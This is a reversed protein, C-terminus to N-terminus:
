NRFCPFVPPDGEVSWVGSIEDEGIVVGSCAEGCAGARMFTEECEFIEHEFSGRVGPSFHEGDDAIDEGEGSAGILLSGEFIFEEGFGDSDAPFIELVWVEVDVGECFAQVDVAGGEEPDEPFFHIHSGGFIDTLETELVGDCKEFM